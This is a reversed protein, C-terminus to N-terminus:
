PPVPLTLQKHTQANHTTHHSSTTSTQSLCSWLGGRFPDTSGGKQDQEAGCIHFSISKAM